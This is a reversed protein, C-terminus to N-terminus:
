CHCDMAQQLVNCQLMKSPTPLDMRMLSFIGCPLIMLSFIGCPTQM